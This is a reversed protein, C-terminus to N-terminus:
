RSHFNEVAHVRNFFGQLGAAATEVLDNYGALAFILTEVVEDGGTALSADPDALFGALLQSQHGFGGGMLAHYGHDAWLFEESNFVQEGWAVLRAGAAQQEREIAYFVGLIEASQEAYGVARAYIADDEGFPARRGEARHCHFGARACGLVESYGSHDVEDTGQFVEFALVDPDDSEVFAARGVVIPEVEGAVADDDESAFACAQVVQDAFGAIM